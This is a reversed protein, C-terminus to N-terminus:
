NLPPPTPNVARARVMRDGQADEPGRTKIVAFVSGEGDAVVHNPHGGVDFNAVVAGQPDVGALTGSERCAVWAVGSFPDVTLSLAGAGVPTRFIRAGSEADLATLDDSEQAAVLLRNRLADYALGAANRLGPLPLLRTLRNTELDIEAIEPLVRSVAFLRGRAADLALGMPIFGGERRAPSIRITTLPELAEADFVGIENSASGSVYARGRAADVVVERPHRLLGPTFQKVSELGDQAYVAVTDHLTNTAWVRGRAEDIGLGFVAVPTPGSRRLMAATEPPLPAQPTSAQAQIELTEPNLRLLASVPDARSGPRGLSATAVFLARSKASWAAQYPGPSLVGSSVAFREAGLAPLDPSIRLDLLRVSPPAEALLALVHTGVAAREPLRFRFLLAGADDVSLAGEHLPTAGRTLRLRLGPPLGEGRLLVAGGPRIPGGAEALLRLKGSFEAPTEFLAEPTQDHTM